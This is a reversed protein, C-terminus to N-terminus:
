VYVTVFVVIAAAPAATGASASSEDFSTESTTISWSGARKRVLARGGRVIGWGIVSGAVLVAVGAGFSDVGAITGVGM